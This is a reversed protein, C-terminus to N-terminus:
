PQIAAAAIFLADLDASSFGLVPALNAIISDNRQFTVQEQWALQDLPSATSTMYATVAAYKGANLLAAKAQFSTVFLPVTPVSPSTVAPPDPIITLGLHAALEITVPISWDWSTNPFASSLQSPNLTAGESTTYTPM